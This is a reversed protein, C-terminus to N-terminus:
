LLVELKLFKINWLKAINFVYNMVKIKVYM